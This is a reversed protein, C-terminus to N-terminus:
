HSHEVTGHRHVHAHTGRATRKANGGTEKAIMQLFSEANVHNQQGVTGTTVKITGDDLIEIEFTDM